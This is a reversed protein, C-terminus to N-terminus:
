RHIYVRALNCTKVGRLGANEISATTIQVKFLALLNVTAPRDIGAFPVTPLNGLALLLLSICFRWDYFIPGCSLIVDTIPQLM